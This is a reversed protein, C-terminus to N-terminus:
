HHLLKLNTRKTVTNTVGPKVCITVYRIEDIIITLMTLTLSQFYYLVANVTILGAQTLPTQHPCSILTKLICSGRAETDGNPVNQLCVVTVSTRTEDHM